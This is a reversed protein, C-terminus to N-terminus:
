IPAIPLDLQVRQKTACLVLEKEYNGNTPYVCSYFKVNFLLSLLSYNNYLITPDLSILKCMQTLRHGYIYIFMYM